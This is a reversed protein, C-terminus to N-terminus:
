VVKLRFGYLFKDIVEVLCIMWKFLKLNYYKCLCVYYVKDMDILFMCWWLIDIIVMKWM